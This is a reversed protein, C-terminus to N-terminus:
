RTSRKKGHAQRVLQQVRSISIGLSKAIRKYTWKHKRVELIMSLFTRKKRNMNIVAIKLEDHAAQLDKELSSDTM